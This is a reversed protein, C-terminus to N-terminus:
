SEKPLIRKRRRDQLSAADQGGGCGRGRSQFWGAVRKRTRRSQNRYRGMTVLLWSFYQHALPFTPDMAVTHQFQQDAKEYNEAFMYTMGMFNNIPLSLPDLELARQNEAIAESMRGMPALCCNSYFLHAHRAMGPLKSISCVNGELNVTAFAHRRNRM